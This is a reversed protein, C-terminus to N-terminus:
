LDVGMGTDVSKQISISGGAFGRRITNRTVTFRLTAKGGGIM